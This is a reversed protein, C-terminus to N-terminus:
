RVTKKSLPYSKPKSNSFHWFLLLAVGICVPPVGILLAANLKYTRLASNQVVINPPSYVGYLILGVGIVLLIIGILLLFPHRTHM